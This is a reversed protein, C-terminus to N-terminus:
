RIQSYVSYKQTKSQQDFLVPLILIDGQIKALQAPM